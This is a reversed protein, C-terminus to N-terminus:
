ETMLGSLRKKPLEVNLEYEYIVRSVVTWAELPEEDISVLENSIKKTEESFHGRPFAGIIVIPCKEAALRRMTQHLLRPKGMRTFTMLYSPKVEEIINHLSGRKLELLIKDDKIIKSSDYLQELLGTFRDYNRPLRVDPSPYLVYNDVTHVYTRLLNERNLPTGLAELLCFHVIDPRGRRYADKLGLMARHHFSRDLLLQGPKKNLREAMKFVSPHSWLPKPVRELASEALILNLM